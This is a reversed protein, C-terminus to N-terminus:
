SNIMDIPETRLGYSTNELIGRILWDAEDLPLDHGATPHVRMPIGWKEAISRTCTHDVLRDQSSGYLFTNAIPAHKPAKYRAAALLQATANKLTMPHQQFEDVWASVYQEIDKQNSTWKLIARERTAVNFLSPILHGVADLKMRQWPTNFNSFSTNILHLSGVPATLMQSHKELVDTAIMAGMSIAIIHIRGELNLEHIKKAIDEAMGGISWPTNENYREGNGPIDICIVRDNPRAEQLREPFSYWHFSGRILGRLLIWTQCDKM